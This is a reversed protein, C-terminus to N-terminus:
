TYHSLALHVTWQPAPKDKKAVRCTLTGDNLVLQQQWNLVTDMQGKHMIMTEAL